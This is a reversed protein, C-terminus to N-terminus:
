HLNIEKEKLKRCFPIDKALLWLERWRKNRCPLNIQNTLKPFHVTCMQWGKERKQLFCTMYEDGDPELHVEGLAPVPKCKIPWSRSYTELIWSLNNAFVNPQLGSVCEEFLKIMEMQKIGTDKEWNTGLQAHLDWLRFLICNFFKM